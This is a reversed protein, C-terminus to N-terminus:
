IIEIPKCLDTYEQAIGFRRKRIKAEETPTEAQYFRQGVEEYEDALEAIKPALELTTAGKIEGEKDHGIAIIPRGWTGPGAMADGMHMVGTAGPHTHVIVVDHPIKTQYAERLSIGSIDTYSSALMRSPVYGMGGVVIEGQQLVHGDKIKGIAAVERGREVELSKEVLSKAFDEDLSNVEVRPIQWEKTPPVKFKYDRKELDVIELEECIELYKLKRQSMKRLIEREEEMTKATLRKIQIKEAQTALKFYDEKPYIAGVGAPQGMKVGIKVIPCGFINIGGTDVIIGTKGPNTIIIVINDPLQNLAELLSKGETKVLRSLMMRQPLGSIGGDVLESIADIYGQENIFGLAGVPRGQSLHNGRKVMDEVIFDAIGKIRM